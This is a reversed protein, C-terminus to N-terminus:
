SISSSNLTNNLQRSQKSISRLKQQSARSALHKRGHFGVEIPELVIAEIRAAGLQASSANLNMKFRLDKVNQQVEDPM